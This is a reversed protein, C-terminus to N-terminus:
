PYQGVDPDYIANGDADLVYSRTWRCNDGDVDCAFRERRYRSM